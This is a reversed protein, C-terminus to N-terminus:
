VGAKQKALKANNRRVARRGKPLNPEINDWNKIPKSYHKIRKM